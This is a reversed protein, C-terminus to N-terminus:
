LKEFSSDLIIKLLGHYQEVLNEQEFDRDKNYKLRVDYHGHPTLRGQFEFLDGNNEIYKQIKDCTDKNLYYSEIAPLHNKM